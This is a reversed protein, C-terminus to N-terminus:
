LGHAKEELDYEDQIEGIIEEVIDELTVIGAMVYEDVVIALHFRTKKMQQLLEEINKSEPIFIAKRMYKRINESTETKPIKLMDKAYIM